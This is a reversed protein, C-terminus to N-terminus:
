LTENDQDYDDMLVESDDTAVPTYQYRNRGPLPISSWIRSVFRPM